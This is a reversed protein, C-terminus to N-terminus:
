KSTKFISKLEYEFFLIKEEMEGRLGERGGESVGKRREEGRRQVRKSNDLGL